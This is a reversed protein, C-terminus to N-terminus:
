LVRLDTGCTLSTFEPRRAAKLINLFLPTLPPGRFEMYVLWDGCGQPGLCLLSPDKTPLSREWWVNPWIKLFLAFSFSASDLEHHAELKLVQLFSFYYIKNPSAWMTKQGLDRM